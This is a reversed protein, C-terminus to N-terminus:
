PLSEFTLQGSTRLRRFGIIDMKQMGFVMKYLSNIVNDVSEFSIYGCSLIFAIIAFPTGISSVVLFFTDIIILYILLLPTTAFFLTSKRIFSCSLKSDEFSTRMKDLQYSIFPVYAIMFPWIVTQLNCCLWATHVSAGFKYILYGDTIFDFTSLLEIIFSFSAEVLQDM